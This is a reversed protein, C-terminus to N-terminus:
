DKNTFYLFASSRHYACTKLRRHNAKFVNYIEFQLNCFSFQFFLRDKRNRSWLMLGQPIKWNGNYFLKGTAAPKLRRQNAKFVNYIEFQL